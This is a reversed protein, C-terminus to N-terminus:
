KIAPTCAYCRICRCVDTWAEDVAPRLRKQRLDDFPDCRRAAVIERHARAEVLASYTTANRLNWGLDDRGEVFGTEERRLQVDVEEYIRIAAM